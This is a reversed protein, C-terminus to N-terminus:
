SRDAEPDSVWSQSPSPRIYTFLLELSVCVSSPSISLLTHSERMRPFGRFAEQLLCCNFLRSLHCSALFPVKPSQAFCVPSQHSRPNWFGLTAAVDISFWLLTGCIGRQSEAIKWPRPERLPATSLLMPDIESERRGLTLRVNPLLPARQVM